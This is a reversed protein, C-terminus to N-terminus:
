SHMFVLESAPLTSSITRPPFVQVHKFNNKNKKGNGGINLHGIKPKTHNKGMALNDSGKETCRILLLKM